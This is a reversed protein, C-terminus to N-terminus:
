ESTEDVVEVQVVNFNVKELERAEWIEFRDKEFMRITGCEICGCLKMGGNEFETTVFDSGSAGCVHCKTKSIWEATEIREKEKIIERRSEHTSLIETNDGECIVFNTRCSVCQIAERETGDVAVDVIKILDASLECHPCSIQEYTSDLSIISPDRLDDVSVGLIDALHDVVDASINRSIEIRYIDHAQYWTDGANLKANLARALQERSMGREDRYKYLNNMM